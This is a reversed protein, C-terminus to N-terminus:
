TVISLVNMQSVIFNADKFNQVGRTIHHVEAERDRKTIPAAVAEATATKGTKPIQCLEIKNNSTIQFAFSDLEFLRRSSFFFSAESLLLYYNLLRETLLQKFVNVRVIASVLLGIM